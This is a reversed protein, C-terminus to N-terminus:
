CPGGIKPCYLLALAALVRCYQVIHSTQTLKRKAFLRRIFRNRDNVSCFILYNKSAMIRIKCFLCCESCFIGNKLSKPLFTEAYSQNWTREALWHLAIKLKSFKAVFPMPCKAFIRNSRALLSPRLKVRSSAQTSFVKSIWEEQAPSEPDGMKLYLKWFSSCIEFEV